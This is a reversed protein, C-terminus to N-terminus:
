RRSSSSSRSWSRWSAGHAHHRGGGLGAADGGAGAPGGAPDLLYALIAGLVFPLLIDGLLWLLVLFVLAAIGWIRAQQGVTGAM